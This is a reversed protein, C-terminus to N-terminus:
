WDKEVKYRGGRVARRKEHKRRKEEELIERATVELPELEESDSLDSDSDQQSGKEQQAQQAQEGPQDKQDQGDQGPQKDKQQKESDQQERGPQPQKCQNNKCEKSLEKLANELYEVADTQKNVAQDGNFMELFQQSQQQSGIALEMQKVAGASQAAAPSNPDAQRMGSTLEATDNKIQEQVLAQSEYQAATQQKDSNSSQLNEVTGATERAINKQQDIIKKLEDILQQRQKEQQAQKNIQDIIDKIILRAVEINEAAKIYEPDLELVDRWFDIASKYSELSKEIDSNKQKQAEAFLCNGLNYKAKIVLPMDRSAAAVEKFLEAAGETDELRYFAAAKNFKVEMAEPKETLARDYSAAAETYSGESYLRNGEGVLSEASAAFLVAPLLLLVAASNICRRANM